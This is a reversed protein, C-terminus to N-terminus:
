SVHSGKTARARHGLTSNADMGELVKGLTKVMQFRAGAM